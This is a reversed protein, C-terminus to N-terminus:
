VRQGEQSGRASSRAKCDRVQAHSVLRRGWWARGMAGEYWSLDFDLVSVNIASDDTFFNRLMVNATKLDRHLVRLTLEHGRLVTEGVMLVISLSDDVYEIHRGEIAQEFNIGEVYEMIVCAPIDFARVYRVMGEVRDDSLIRMARVGRRFAELFGAQAIAGEHLVKMAYIQGDVSDEVKWVQGFGGQGISGVLRYGWVADYSDPNMHWAMHVSASYKAMFTSMYRIQDDHETIKDTEGKLAANLRARIDPIPMQRMENDSPLDKAEIAVGQYAVTGHSHRPRFSALQALIGVVEPHDKASPSYAIVKLNYTSAWAYDDASPNPVIWFHDVRRSSLQGRFDELLLSEFAFDKPRFGVIVIRRSSLLHGIWEKYTRDARLLRNRARM